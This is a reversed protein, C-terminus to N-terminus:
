VLASVDHVPPRTLSPPLFNPHPATPLRQWEFKGRQACTLLSVAADPPAALACEQVHLADLEAVAQGGGQVVWGRLPNCGLLTLSRLRPCALAAAPMEAAAGAGEVRLEVLSALGPLARWLSFGAKRRPTAALVHALSLRTVGGLAAVAGPDLQAVRANAVDLRRLARLARLLEPPVVVSHARGALRLSTLAELASWAGLEAPAGPLADVSVGLDRLRRLAALGRLAPAPM